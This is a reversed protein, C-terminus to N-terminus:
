TNKKLLKRMFEFKYKAIFVLYVIELIGITNILLLAIFWGKQQRRASVWLALGKWPISWVEVLVIVWSLWPYQAFVDAQM